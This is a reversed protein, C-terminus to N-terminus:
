YKELFAREFAEDEESLDQEKITGSGGHVQKHCYSCLCIGNDLDLSLDPMFWKPLKHHAYATRGNLIRGCRECIYGAREKVLRKWESENIQKVFTSNGCHMCTAKIHPGAVSYIFDSCGCSCVKRVITREGVRDTIVEM